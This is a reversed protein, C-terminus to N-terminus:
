QVTLIGKMNLTYHGPFTCIFEYKGKQAPVKFTVEVTEDPGALATMALVKDKQAAPIFDTDRSNRGAKVLAAADTGRALLVFNHAMALKPMTSTSVLVVRLTEGPRATISTVSYKMSDDVGITVTRAPGAQGHLIVVALLVLLTSMGEHYYCEVLSSM